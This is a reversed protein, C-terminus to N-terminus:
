GWIDGNSLAVHVGASGFGVIDAAGDGNIDGLHRPFADESSWSGAAAGFGFFGIDLMESQFTGNGNGLAIYVGDNGFGVIDVNGDGDVDALERPYKDYSIWGDPPAAGFANLQLTPASFTGDTQGLSVYVGNNGFGVIDSRHDGNM